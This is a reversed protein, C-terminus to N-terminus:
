LFYYFYNIDSNMYRWCRPINPQWPLPLKSDIPLFKLWCLFKVCIYLGYIYNYFISVSFLFMYYCCLFLKGISFSFASPFALKVISPIQGQVRLLVEKSFFLQIRHLCSKKKIKQSFHDSTFYNFSVRNIPNWQNSLM